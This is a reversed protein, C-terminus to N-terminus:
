IKNYFSILWRKQLWTFSGIGAFLFVQIIGKLRSPRSKDIPLNGGDLINLIPMDNKEELLAQERNVAITTMIQQQLKFDTELRGGELRVSPDASSQYNRNSELFQRFRNESKLLEDKAEALRANSFLVKASGRTRGKTSVFEELLRIARQVIQQSLEQSQTEASITLVKTKTDRSVSIVKGLGQVGRDLNAAHMQELLTEDHLKATGFRWTLQHFKFKNQLLAERMWRSNLIDIFNGDSGDNSPINMGLMAAASALSGMSASSRSDVPLIIATSQYYNPMFVSYALAILAAGFAVLFSHQLSRMYPQSHQKQREYTDM